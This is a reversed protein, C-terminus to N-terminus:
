FLIKGLYESTGCLTGTLSDNYFKDKSLGFDILKIYGMNDLIINEPKIDRYIINNYHLYSLALYLQAAYFKTMEENFRTKMQLHFFLEGGNNYDFLMYLKEPTQFTLHLKIIFPHDIKELVRKEARILQDCKMKVIEVKKLCKLAYFNNDVKSKVLIVKGFNGRGIVKLLHYDDMSKGEQSASKKSKYEKNLDKLNKPNDVKPLNLKMMHKQTGFKKYHRVHEMQPSVPCTTQEDDFTCQRLFNETKCPEKSNSPVQGM